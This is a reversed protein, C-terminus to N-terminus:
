GRGAGVGRGVCREYTMLDDENFDAMASYITQLHGSGHAMEDSVPCVGCGRSWASRCGGAPSSGRRSRRCMSISSDTSRRVRASGDQRSPGSSGFPGRAVGRPCSEACSSRWHFSSYVDQSCPQHHQHQQHSRSILSRTWRIHVCTPRHHPPVGIAAPLLHSRRSHHAPSTHPAPRKQSHSVLSFCLSIGMLVSKDTSHSRSISKGGLAQGTLIALLLSLRFGGSAPAQNM